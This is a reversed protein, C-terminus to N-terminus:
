IETLAVKLMYQRSVWVPHTDSLRSYDPCFEGALYRTPFPQVPQFAPWYQGTSDLSDLPPAPKSIYDWPQECSEITTMHLFTGGYHSDLDRVNMPFSVPSISLHLSQM